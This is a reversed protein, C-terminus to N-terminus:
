PWRNLGAPVYATKITEDDVAHATQGDFVIWQGPQLTIKQGSVTLSAIRSHTKSALAPPLYRGSTLWEQIARAQEEHGLFRIAVASQTAPHTNTQTNVPRVQLVEATLSLDSQAAAVPKAMREKRNTLAEFREARQTDNLSPKATISSIAGDTKNEIIKAIRENEARADVNLTNKPTNSPATLSFIVGFVIIVLGVSRLTTAAEIARQKNPPVGQSFASKKIKEIVYHTTTLLAMGVLLYPAASLAVNFVYANM